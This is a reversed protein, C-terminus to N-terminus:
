SRRPRFPRVWESESTGPGVLVVLADSVLVRRYIETEWVMGAALGAQDVWPEYGGHESLLHHFIEAETNKQVVLQGNQQRTLMKKYCVFVRMRDAM